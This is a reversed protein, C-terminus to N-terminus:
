DQKRERSILALSRKKDIEGSKVWGQEVEGVFQSYPVAKVSDGGLLAKGKGSLFTAGMVLVILPVLIRLIKNTNM